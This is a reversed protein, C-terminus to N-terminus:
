NPKENLEGHLTSFVCEDNEGPEDIGTVGLAIMKHAMCLRIEELRTKTIKLTRKEENLISFLAAICYSAFVTWNKDDATMPDLRAM